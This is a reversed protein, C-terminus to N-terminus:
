IRPAYVGTILTSRAVSCVPANSFANDFVVGDSALSSIAPMEAGGETYIDMYHISNDETVIWLINPKSQDNSCAFTILSLVILVFTRM